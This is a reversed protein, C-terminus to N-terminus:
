GGLVGIDAASLAWLVLDDPDHCSVVTAAIFAGTVATVSVGAPWLAGQVDSVMSSSVTVALAAAVVVGVVALNSIRADGDMFECLYFFM